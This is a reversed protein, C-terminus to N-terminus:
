SQGRQIQARRLVISAPGLPTDAHVDAMVWPGDAGVQGFAVSIPSKMGQNKKAPSKKKFGAIENYRVTCRVLNTIGLNREIDNPAEAHAGAFALEYLQKGDFFRPSGECPRVPAALTLRMLATLPDAAALKQERSAPPEGLNGFAPKSTMDVDDGRWNVKVLREREGDHNDYTFAGPRPGDEDIRGNASAKIDFHKFAALIGYSRLQAGAGYVSTGIHQDFQLDLVKIAFLRGDYGLALRMPAPQPQAVAGQGAPALLTLASLTAALVPKLSM